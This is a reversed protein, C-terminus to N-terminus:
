KEVREGRLRGVTRVDEDDFADHPQEITCGIPGPFGAPAACCSIESCMEM